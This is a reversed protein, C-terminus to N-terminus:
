EEQDPAHQDSKQHNSTYSVDSARNARSMPGNPEVEIEHRAIFRDIHRFIRHLTSVDRKELQHRGFLRRISRMFTEPRHHSSFGLMDLGRAVHEYMAEIQEHPALQLDPQENPDLAARYLEYGMILVAQALNLSPYTHASPIRCVIQCKELEDNTLGTKERGFVLAGDGEPPLAVLRAAVEAPGYLVDFDKRARASTGVTLITGELAEDLTDTVTAGYLVDGSGHAMKRADGCTHDAARVLYLRTLGANKMARAVSGINGPQRPEVLVVRIRSLADSM